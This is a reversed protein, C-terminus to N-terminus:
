RELQKAPPVINPNIDMYGSCHKCFETYGKESYGLRFEILEKQKDQTYTKLDFYETKDLKTLGAVMAYSSYNCTYIKGERLEQWPVHCREFKDQLKEESWNSHDTTLPALDIWEDAKNIEYTIGYSELLVLLKKFTEESQPVAERYDDVTVEVNHESLAKLLESKPLITGNTVTRLTHIQKRYHNDIYEVLRAMHPYLMPEGGSIHFLMIYDICSFFTDIDAKIQDWPREDFHKMYPTFNLCAECRLNCRTSPLFSISSIYTQNKKYSMYVTLFFAMDFFDKGEILGYEKLQQAITSHINPSVTIIIGTTEGMEKKIKEFSYVPKQCYEGGQKKSDNDIFGAIMIESNLVEYIQQGYQGAGFLYYKDLKKMNEYATDFEHGKNKWKM